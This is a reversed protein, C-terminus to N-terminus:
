PASLDRHFKGYIYLISRFVNLCSVKTKNLERGSDRAFGLLSYIQEDMNIKSVNIKSVPEAITLDIRMNPFHM